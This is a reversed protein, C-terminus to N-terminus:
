SDLSSKGDDVLEIGKERIKLENIFKFQEYKTGPLKGDYVLNQHAISTLNERSEDYREGGHLWEASEPVLAM